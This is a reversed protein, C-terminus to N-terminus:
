QAHPLPQGPPADTYNGLDSKSLMNCPAASRTTASAASSVPAPAPLTVFWFAEQFSAL